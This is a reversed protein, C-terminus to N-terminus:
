HSTQIFCCIVYQFDRKKTQFGLTERQKHTIDWHKYWQFGKWHFNNIFIFYNQNTHKRPLCSRRWEPKKKKKKQSPPPPPINLRSWVWVVRIARLKATFKLEIIYTYLFKILLFHHIRFNLSKSMFDLTEYFAWAYLKKSLPINPCPKFM